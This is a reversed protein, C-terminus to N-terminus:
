RAREAAAAIAQAVYAAAAARRYEASAFIDGILEGSLDGAARGSAARISEPTLTQGTLAAAVAPLPTPPATLGGVVVTAQRCVADAVEIVAAAGIVAYRSAPHAFKRYAAGRGRGLSPVFVATVIEDEGLATAMLGQFFDAANVSRKGRAGAVEIRAGAAVLVIPLDAAPDAHAVSGGITGRNRVAPDGIRSAAESLMACHDAVLKSAAVEAHPTMAGIRVGGDAAAVGRLEAVRGLDILAEPAALRLKLM